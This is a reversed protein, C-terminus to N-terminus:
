FMALACYSHRCQGPSLQRPAFIRGAAVHTQRYVKPLSRCFQRTWTIASVDQSAGGGDGGSPRFADPTRQGFAPMAAVVAPRLPAYPALSLELDQWCLFGLRLEALGSVRRHAQDPHMEGVLKKRPRHRPDPAARSTERHGLQKGGGMVLRAVRDQPVEEAMLHPGKLDGFGQADVLGRCRTRDAADPSTHPAPRVGISSATYQRATGTECAINWFVGSSSTRFWAVQTV